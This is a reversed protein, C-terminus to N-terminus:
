VQAVCGLLRATGELKYRLIDLHSHWGGSVNLKFNRDSIRRHTLTLRVKDGEQDLRFEVESFEGARTQPGFTFALLHPPECKVLINSSSHGKEDMERMREPAISTHPSYESHKFRMQFHEGPNAPMAGSAFWEGRKKADYLFDWVREIPGPLLREFRITNPNLQRGFEDM